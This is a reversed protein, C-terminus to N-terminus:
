NSKYRGHAWLLAIQQRDADRTFLTDILTRIHHTRDAWEGETSGMLRNTWGESRATGLPRPGLDPVEHDRVYNALGAALQVQGQIVGPDHSADPFRFELRSNDGNFAHNFNVVQYRDTLVVQDPTAWQPGPDNFMRTWRRERYSGATRGCRILDDEFTRFMQVLRYASETTFGPASVNTHSGAGSTTGGNDRIIQCARDLRAWDRPNDGCITTVLEGGSAVTVDRELQWYNGEYGTRTMSHHNGVHASGIIGAEALQQAVRAQVGNIDANFELEVGFRTGALDPGFVHESRFPVVRQEGAQQIVARFAEPDAMFSTQASGAAAPAEGTGRPQTLAARASSQMQEPSAIHGLVALHQRFQQRAQNVHACSGSSCTSCTLEGPETDDIDFVQRTRRTPDTIVEEGPRVTVLGTVMASQDPRNYSLEVSVPENNNDNVAQYVEAAGATQLNGSATTSANTPTTIIQAQQVPCLHPRDGVFQGCHDCRVAWATQEARDLRNCRFNIDDFTAMTPRTVVCDRDFSGRNWTEVAFADAPGGGVRRMEVRYSLDSYGIESYISSGLDFVPDERLPVWRQVLRVPPRLPSRTQLQTLAHRTVPDSPIVGLDDLEEPRARAQRGSPAEARLRVFEARVERASMGLQGALEHLRGETARQSAHVGAELRAM